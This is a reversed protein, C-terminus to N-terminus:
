WDGWKFPSSVTILGFSNCKRTPQDSGGIANEDKDGCLTGKGIDQARSNRREHKGFDYAEFKGIRLAFGAPSELDAGISAVGVVAM